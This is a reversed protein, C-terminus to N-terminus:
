ASWGKAKFMMMRKNFRRIKRIVRGPIRDQWDALLSVLNRWKSPLSHRVKM